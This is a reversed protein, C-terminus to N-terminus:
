KGRKGGGGAGTGSAKRVLTVLDAWEEESFHATVGALELHYTIEGNEKESTKWLVFYDTEAVTETFIDEEM